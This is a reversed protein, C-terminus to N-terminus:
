KNLKVLMSVAIRQRILIAILIFLTKKDAKVAAYNPDWVQAASQTFKDNHIKTFAGSIWQNSGIEYWADGNFDVVKDFFKWSTGNALKRGTAVKDNGFGQWLDLGVDSAYAITATGTNEVELGNYKTADNSNIWMDTAIQYWTKGDANDVRSYKWMSGVSLKNDAATYKGDNYNYVLAGNGVKVTGASAQGHQLEVDSAKVFENTAVRYVSGVGNLDIRQDTVWPTNNALARNGILKGENNYLRAMNKTTVVGKISDAKVPKTVSIAGLISASILFTTIIKKKM